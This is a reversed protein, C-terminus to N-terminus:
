ASAKRSALREKDVGLASNDLSCIQFPLWYM